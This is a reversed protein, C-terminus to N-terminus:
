AATLDPDPEGARRRPILPRLRFVRATDREEQLDILRGALLDVLTVIGLLRDPAERSVVPLRTVGQDAIFNAAERLTIDPYTVVPPPLTLDALTAGEPLEHGDLAAALMDRRTVVGILSEGPGLVPYIRQM